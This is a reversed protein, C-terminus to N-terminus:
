YNEHFQYVLNIVETKDGILSIRSIGHISIVVQSVWISNGYHMLYDALYLARLKDYMHITIRAIM